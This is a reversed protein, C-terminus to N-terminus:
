YQADTARLIVSEVQSVETPVRCVNNKKKKLRVAAAKVASWFGLLCHLQLIYACLFRCQIGPEPSLLPEESTRRNMASTEVRACFVM